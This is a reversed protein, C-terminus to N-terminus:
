ESIAASSLALACGDLSDATLFIAPRIIRFAVSTEFATKGNGFSSPIVVSSLSALLFSLHSLSAQHLFSCTLRENENQDLSHSQHTERAANRPDLPRVAASLM